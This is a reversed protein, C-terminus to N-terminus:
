AMQLTRTDKFAHYQGLFCYEGPRLLRKGERSERRIAERLAAKFRTRVRNREVAFKSVAAKSVALGVRIIDVSVDSRQPFAAGAPPTGPTLPQNITDRDGVSQSVSAIYHEKAAHFPPVPSPPLKASPIARFTFSASNSQRLRAKIM